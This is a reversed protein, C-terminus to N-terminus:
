TQAVEEQNEGEPAEGAALMKEGAEKTLRCYFYLVCGAIAFAAVGALGILIQRFCEDLGEALALVIPGGLGFVTVAFAAFTAVTKFLESRTKERIKHREVGTTTEGRALKMDSDNAM